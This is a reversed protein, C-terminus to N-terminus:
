EVLVSSYLLDGIKIEKEYVQSNGYKNENPHENLNLYEKGIKKLAEAIQIADDSPPLFPYYVYAYRFLLKELMQFLSPNQQEIESIILSIQKITIHSEIAPIATPRMHQRQGMKHINVLCFVKRDQLWQFIATKIVPHVAENELLMMIEDTPEAKIYRMQEIIRWQETYQQEELAEDLQKVYKVCKEMTLEKEMTESLHYLQKFQDRLISPINKYQLEHEVTDMLQAHQNTQFLITLYIHLYDYYHEHDSHLVEECIEQAETYKNLEILCILKGIIIEHGQINYSILQNLVTLAEDYNKQQLARLGKEILTTKWKPFLIVKEGKTM